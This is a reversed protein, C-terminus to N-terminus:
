QPPWVEPSCAAVLAHRAATELGRLIGSRTSAEYSSLAGGEDILALSVITSAQVARGALEVARRPTGAPSDFVPVHRLNILEDAVAPQWKAVDLAALSDAASLLEARLSRDAEGLDTLQRPWARQMRWVVGAGARYPILGLGAEPLVVAEGTDLAENNFEPPGGLGAPDGEAPVALGATRAGLARLTGLALVLPVAEEQGPLGVVDHAADAAVVAERVDDPAADGRLWASLWWALRASDLPLPRFM